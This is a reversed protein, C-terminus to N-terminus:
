VELTCTGLPRWGEPRSRTKLNQIGLSINLPELTLRGYTDITIKDMQTIVPLLIEKTPDKILAKWTERYCRGTNIDRLKHSPPPPSFPDKNHFLLNEDKMLNADSLLSAIMAPASHYIIKVTDGLGPLVLSKERAILPKTKTTEMLKKM